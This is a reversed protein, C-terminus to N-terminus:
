PNVKEKDANSTNEKHFSVGEEILQIFQETDEKHKKGDFYIVIYNMGYLTTAIKWLQCKIGADSIRKFRKFNDKGDKLTKAYSSIIFTNKNPTSM